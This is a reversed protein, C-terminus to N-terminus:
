VYKNMLNCLKGNENLVHRQKIRVILSVTWCRWLDDGFETWSPFREYDEFQVEM